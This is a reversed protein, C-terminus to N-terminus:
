ENSVDTALVDNLSHYSCLCIVIGSDGLVSLFFM